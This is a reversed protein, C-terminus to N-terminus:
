VNMQINPLLNPIDNPYESTSEIENPYESPSEFARNNLYVSTSAGKSSAYKKDASFKSWRNDKDASNENLIQSQM